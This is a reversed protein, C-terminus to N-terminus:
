CLVYSDASYNVATLAKLQSLVQNQNAASLTVNFGVAYYYSLGNNSM